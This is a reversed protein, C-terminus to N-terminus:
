FGDIIVRGREPKLLGLAIRMATTKGAGNHGLFGYCDGDRIHISVGDLAAQQGFHHTLSLLELSM